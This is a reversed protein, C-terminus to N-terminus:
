FIYEVDRGKDTLIIEISSQFANLEFDFQGSCLHIISM